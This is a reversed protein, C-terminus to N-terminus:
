ASDHPLTNESVVVDDLSKSPAEGCSSQSGAIKEQPWRPNAFTAKGHSKRLGQKALVACGLLVVNDISYYATQLSLEEAGVAGAFTLGIAFTGMRQMNSMITM